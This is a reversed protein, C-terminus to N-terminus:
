SNIIKDIDMTMDYQKDFFTCIPIGNDDNKKSIGIIESNENWIGGYKDKYYTKNEIQFESLIIENEDNDNDIVPQKLKNDLLYKNQDKLDPFMEFLKEIIEMKSNDLGNKFENNQLKDNIISKIRDEINGETSYSM